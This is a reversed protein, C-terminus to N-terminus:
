IRWGKAEMMLFNQKEEENMLQIEYEFEVGRALIPEATSNILIDEIPINPFPFKFLIKAKGNKLMVDKIIGLDILSYNIAPHKVDLLAEKIEEKTTM